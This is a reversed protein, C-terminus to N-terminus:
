NKNNEPKNYGGTVGKAIAMGIATNVLKSTFLDYLPGQTIGLANAIKAGLSPGIIFGLTGGIINSLFSENINEDIQVDKLKNIIELIITQESENLSDFEPNIIEKYKKM